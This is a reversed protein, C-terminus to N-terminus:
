NVSKNQFDASKGKIWACVSWDVARKQNRWFSYYMAAPVSTVWHENFYNSHTILIESRISGPLARSGPSTVLSCWQKAGVSIARNVSSLLVLLLAEQFFLVSNKYMKKYLGATKSRWSIRCWAEFECLSINYLETNFYHWFTYRITWKWWTKISILSFILLCVVSFPRLLVIVGSVSSSMTQSQDKDTLRQQLLNAFNGTM